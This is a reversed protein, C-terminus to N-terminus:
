VRCPLWSGAGVGEAWGSERRAVVDVEFSMVVMMMMTKEMRM